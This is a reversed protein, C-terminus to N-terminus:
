ARTGCSSLRRAMVVSAWVGLARAGCCSFGGCRSAQTGCCLTAGSAVVLSLGPAAAFVWCLWFYIFLIYKLIFLYIFAVKKQFGRLLMFDTYIVKHM